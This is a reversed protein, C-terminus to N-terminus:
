FYLVIIIFLFLIKFNTNVNTLESYNKSDLKTILFIEKEEYHNIRAM